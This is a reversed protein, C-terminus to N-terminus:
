KKRRLHWYRQCKAKILKLIPIVVLIGGILVNIIIVVINFWFNIEGIEYRILPDSVFDTYILLFYSTILM